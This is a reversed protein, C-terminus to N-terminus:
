ELYDGFAGSHAFIGVTDEPSTGRFCYYKLSGLGMYLGMYPMYVVTQSGLLRRHATKSLRLYNVFTTTLKFAVVGSNAIACKYVM